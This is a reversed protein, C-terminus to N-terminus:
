GRDVNSATSVPPRLGSVPLVLGTNRGNTVTLDPVDSRLVQRGTTATGTTRARILSAGRRASTHMVVGGIDALRAYDLFQQRAQECRLQRDYQHGSVAVITAGNRLAWVWRNERGPRLMGQLTGLAEVLEAIAARCKDVSSHHGVGRGLDRNNGSLLRWNVASGDQETYVQFHPGGGRGGSADM